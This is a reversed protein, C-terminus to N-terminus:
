KGWLVVVCVGLTIMSIGLARIWRQLRLCNEPTHPLDMVRLWFWVFSDKPYKEYAARAHALWLPSVWYTVLAVYVAVLIIKDTRM